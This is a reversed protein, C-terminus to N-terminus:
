LENKSVVDNLKDILLLLDDKTVVCVYSGCTVEYDLNSTRTLNFSIRSNYAKNVMTVSIMKKIEVSM